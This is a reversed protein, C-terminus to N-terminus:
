SSSLKRVTTTSDVPESHQSVKWNMRDMVRGGGVGRSVFLDDLM